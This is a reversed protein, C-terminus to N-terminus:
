KQTCNERTRIFRLWFFTIKINNVIRYSCIKYTIKLDEWKLHDNGVAYFSYTFGWVLIFYLTGTSGGTRQVLFILDTNILKLTEWRRLEFQTKMRRVFCFKQYVM